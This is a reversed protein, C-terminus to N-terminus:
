DRGLNEIADRKWTVQYEKEVGDFWDRIISAQDNQVLQGIEQSYGTAFFAERRQEETLDESDIRVLYVFARPEDVATGMQGLDLAFVSRMFDNGAGSINVPQNNAIGNVLSLTPRGGGGAPLSGRTMWSFQTTRIVSDADEPFAEALSQGAKGAREAMEEAQAQALPLAKEMKWAQVVQSRVDKLEPIQEPVSDTRWYVYLKEPPIPFGGQPLIGDVFRSPTYLELEGPFAVDIISRRTMGTEANWTTQTARLFEYDSPDSEAPESNRIVSVDLVDILGTQGYVLNNEKAVEEFNIPAPPERGELVKSRSLQRAYDGVQTRAKEIADELNQQAPERAKSRALDERIKGRLEDDLPKYQVPKAAPEKQASPEASAVGSEPQGDAGAEPQPASETKAM